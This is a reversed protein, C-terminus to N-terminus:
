LGTFPGELRLQYRKGLVNHMSFSVQRRLARVVGSLMSVNLGLGAFLTSGAFAKKFGEGWKDIVVDAIAKHEEESVRSDMYQAELEQVTYRIEQRLFDDGFYTSLWEEPVNEWLLSTYEGTEEVIRALDSVSINENCVLAEFMEDARELSPFLKGATDLLLDKYPTQSDSMRKFDPDYLAHAAVAGAVLRNLFEQDCKQVDRSLVPKQPTEATAPSSACLFAAVVSTVVSGYKKFSSM